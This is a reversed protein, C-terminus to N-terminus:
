GEAEGRAVKEAYEIMHRGQKGWSNVGHLMLMIVAAETMEGVTLGEEVAIKTHLLAGHENDRVADLVAFLLHKYKVPLHGEPPPRLAWERMRTYGDFAEPAVRAMTVFSDPIRGMTEMFHAKHRELAGELDQNTSDM